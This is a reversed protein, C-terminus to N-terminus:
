RMRRMSLGRLTTGSRPLVGHRSASTITGDIAHCVKGNAASYLPSDNGGVKINPTEVMIASGLASRLKDKEADQRLVCLGTKAPLRTRSAPPGFCHGKLVHLRFALQFASRM